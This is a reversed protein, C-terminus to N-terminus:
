HGGAVSASAHEPCDVRLRDDTLDQGLLRCRAVEPDTTDFHRCTFCSRDTRIVGASYLRSIEGLLVRLAVAQDADPPATDTMAQLRQTIATAVRGGEPSLEVLTRRRDAPDAARTVLGKSTLATVADTVTPQAVALDDALSGISCPGRALLLVVDLGLVSVGHETAAAQRAARTARALRDVAQFLRAQLPVSEEMAGDHRVPTGQRTLANGDSAAVLSRTRLPPGLATITVAKFWASQMADVEAPDETGRALFDRITATIPVIFAVMYRLPIHPHRTAVGDAEGVRSTHREAILQQYALWQEDWPRQTLDSIWQGFRARVGTLYDMSPAEDQTDFSTVLHPHAGVFGYWVDLIADTQPTLIEGARRLAAEDQPTWLVTQLLLDLDGASIPSPDLAADYTYSHITTM